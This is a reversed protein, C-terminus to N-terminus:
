AVAKRLRAALSDELGYAEAEHGELMDEFAKVVKPSLEKVGFVHRTHALILERVGRRGFQECHVLEHSLVTEIGEDVRMADSRSNLFLLTGRGRPSLVVQAAAGRALERAEREAKARAAASVQPVLAFEARCALEAMGDPTTLTIRVPQLSRGYHEEVIRVAVPAADQVFRLARGRGWGPKYTEVKVPSGFIGM